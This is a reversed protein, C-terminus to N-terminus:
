SECRNKINIYSRESDKRIVIVNYQMNVTVTSVACRGFVNNAAPMLKELRFFNRLLKDVSFMQFRVFEVLDIYQDIGPALPKLFM